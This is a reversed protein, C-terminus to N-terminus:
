ICSPSDQERLMVQVWLRVRVGRGAEGRDAIGDSSSGCRQSRENGALSSLRRFIDMGDLRSWLLSKRARQCVSEEDQEEM